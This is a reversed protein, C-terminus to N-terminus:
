KEHTSMNCLATSDSALLMYATSYHKSQAKPQRQDMDGSSRCLSFNNIELVQRPVCKVLLVYRFTLLGGESQFYINM